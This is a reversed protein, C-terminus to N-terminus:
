AQEENWQIVPAADRLQPPAVALAPDKEASSPALTPTSIALSIAPEM